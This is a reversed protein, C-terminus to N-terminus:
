LECFTISDAPRRASSLKAVLVRIINIFNFVALQAKFLNNQDTDPGFAGDCFYFGGHRFKSGQRFSSACFDDVHEVLLAFLRVGTGKDARALDFLEFLDDLGRSCIGDNTVTFKGRTLEVRQF